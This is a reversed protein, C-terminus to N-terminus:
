VKTGTPLLVASEKANAYISERASDTRTITRIEITYTFGFADILTAEQGYRTMKVEVLDYGEKATLYSTVKNLTHTNMPTKM